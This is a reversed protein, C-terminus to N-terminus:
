EGKGTADEAAAGGGSDAPKATRLLVQWYAAEQIQGELRLCEARKDALASRLGEVRAGLEAMLYRGDFALGASPQQQNDNADNSL